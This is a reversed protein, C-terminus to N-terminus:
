EEASSAANASMTGIAGAGSAGAEFALFMSLGGIPNATLKEMPIGRDKSIARAHELFKKEIVDNLEIILASLDREAEELNLADSFAELRFGGVFGTLMQSAPNVLKIREGGPFRGTALMVIGGGNASVTGDKETVINADPICIYGLAGFMPPRRKANAVNKANETVHDMSNRLLTACEYKDQFAIAQPTRYDLASLVQRTVHICDVITWAHTFLGVHVQRPAECIKQRHSATVHRIIDLSVEVADASFILAELQVAEASEVITPLRRLFADDPLM